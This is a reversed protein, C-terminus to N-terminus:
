PPLTMVGYEWFDTGPVQRTRVISARFLTQSGNSLDLGIVVQKSPMRGPYIFSLGSESLSRAWVTCSNTPVSDLDPNLSSPVYLTALGRFDRRLHKRQKSYHDGLRDMMDLANGAALHQSPIYQDLAVLSM